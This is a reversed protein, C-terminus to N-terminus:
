AKPFTVTVTTGKGQESELSLRGNHYQVAHKVISLGLGTGGSSKSHSKDVRYFREFVRAQHERPIGIGTDQVSVSVEKESQSIRIDVRGGEVNYKVANDCLNCVIESLYRRVGSMGASEGSVSIRVNKAEARSRLNSAAENAIELLDVTERPIESGEDLQSLRIIDDILVVLRSAEKRILGVFRPLDEPKVMGNEILESSGIISQLPTKLEHSVNATFERRSREALEQGTVDFALIVAGAATGDSQIRSIDFQFERGGRGGRIESHGGSMAANIALSMDRSRDITLFSQGLCGSDAGFLKKAAPNISLITGKDNLLVLGESMSGTIQDFEDTKQKLDRLQAAIQRHQQNIRSLLPSLEEYTDNDLPHDLDLGNLPTVIRRAMRRSLVASIIIAILTVLAIPQLMGLVLTLVSAHSVSIRLVTGDSLRMARYFTKETLTASYRSSSGRGAALAEKIEERDAHNKMGSADAQTDHLVTGDAAVWTVRYEDSDLAALYDAGDLEVGRAALSLENELQTQQVGASYEYMVGMIIVACVLLVVVAVTLTSRFIKGTM